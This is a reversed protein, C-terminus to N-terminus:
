RHRVRQFRNFPAVKINRVTPDASEKTEKGHANM